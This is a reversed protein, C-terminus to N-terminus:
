KGSMCDDYAKQAMINVDAGEVSNYGRRLAKVAMKRDNADLKEDKEIADVRENFDDEDMGSNLAEQGIGTMLADVACNESKQELTEAPAACAAVALALAMISYRPNM